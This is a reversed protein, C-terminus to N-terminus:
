RESVALQPGFLIKVQFPGLRVDDTLESHSSVGLIIYTPTFDTRASKPRSRSACFQGTQGSILKYFPSLAEFPPIKRNQACPHTRFPWILQFHTDSRRFIPGSGRFVLIPDM